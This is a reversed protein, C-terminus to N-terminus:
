ANRTKGTFKPQKKPKSTAGKGKPSKYGGNMNRAVLGSKKPKSKM